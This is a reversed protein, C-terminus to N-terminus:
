PASPNSSTPRREPLISLRRGSRHAKFAILSIPAVFLILFASSLLVALEM